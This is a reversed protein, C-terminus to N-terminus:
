QLEIVRISRNRAGDFECLSIGQWQGLLLKGNEVPIIKSPGILAAKIHSDSNGESHRWGVNPVNKKLFTLIDLNVDSDYNEQVMIACTTHGVYVLCAKADNSFDNQVIDRVKESIDVIEERRLTEVDINTM